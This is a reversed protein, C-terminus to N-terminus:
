NMQESIVRLKERNLVNNGIFKNYVANVINLYTGKIGLKKLVKTLFPHQIKDLAKKQM